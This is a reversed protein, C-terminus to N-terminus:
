NEERCDSMDLCSSMDSFMETITPGQCGYSHLRNITEDISYASLRESILALMAEVKDETM